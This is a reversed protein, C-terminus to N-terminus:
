GCSPKLMDNQLACYAKEIQIRASASSFPEFPPPFGSTEQLASRPVQTSVLCPPSPQFPPLCSSSLPSFIRSVTLVRLNADRCVVVLHAFPSTGPWGLGNPDPLPSAREAVQMLPTSTGSAPRFGYGERVHPPWAPRASSTTSTTASAPSDKNGSDDADPDNSPSGHLVENAASESSSEFHLQEMTIKRLSDSLLDGHSAM